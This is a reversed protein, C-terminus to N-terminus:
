NKISVLTAHKVNTFYYNSWSLWRENQRRSKEEQTRREMRDALVLVWILLVHHVTPDPTLKKFARPESTRLLWLLMTDDEESSAVRMFAM